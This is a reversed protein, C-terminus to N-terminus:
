KLISACNNTIVAACGNGVKKICSTLTSPTGATMNIALGASSANTIGDYCGLYLLDVGYTLKQTPYLNCSHTTAGTTVCKFSANYNQSLTQLSCNSNLTTGFVINPTGDTTGCYTAPNTRWSICSGESTMNYTSQNISLIPPPVYSFLIDLNSISANKLNLACNYKLKDGRTPSWIIWQSNNLTNLNNIYDTGNNFSVNCLVTGVETVNFLFSTVNVSGLDFSKSLFVSNSAKPFSSSNEIRLNDIYLYTGSSTSGLDFGIGYNTVATEPSSFSYFNNNFTINNTKWTGGTYILSQTVHYWTGAVYDFTTDSWASSDYKYINGVTLCGLCNANLRTWQTSTNVKAMGDYPQVSIDSVLLYYDMAASTGIISGAYRTYANTQQGANNIRMSKSGAYKVSTNLSLIAAVTDVSYWLSTNVSSGEFDDYVRYDLPNTSDPQLVTTNTTTATTGSGKDQNFDASYNGNIVPDLVAKKTTGQRLEIDFKRFEGLVKTPCFKYEIEREKKFTYPFSSSSKNTEVWKTRSIQKPPKIWTGNIMDQTVNYTEKIYLIGEISFYINLNEQNKSKLVGEICGSSKYEFKNSSVLYDKTTNTTKSIDKSVATLPLYIILLFVFIIIFGYKVKM